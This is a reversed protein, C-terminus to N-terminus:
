STVKFSKKKFLQFWQVYRGNLPRGCDTAIVQKQLVGIQQYCVNTDSTTNLAVDEGVIYITIDHLAVIFFVKIVFSCV